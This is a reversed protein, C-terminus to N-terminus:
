AAAITRPTSAIQQDTSIAASRNKPAVIEPVMTADIFVDAPPRPRDSREPALSTEPPRQNDTEESMIVFCFEDSQQLLPSDM